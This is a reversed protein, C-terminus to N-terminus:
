QIIILIRYFLIRYLASDFDRSLLVGMSRFINHLLIGSPHRDWQKINPGM